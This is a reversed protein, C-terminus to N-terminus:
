NYQAYTEWILSQIKSGQLTLELVEKQGYIYLCRNGLWHERVCVRAHACVCLCVCVCM